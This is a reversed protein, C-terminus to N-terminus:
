KFVWCRPCLDRGQHPLPDLYWDQILPELEEVTPAVAEIGCRDCYVAFFAPVLQEGTEDWAVGMVYAARRRLIENM